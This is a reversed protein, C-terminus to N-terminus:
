GGYVQSITLKNGTFGYQRGNMTIYKNADTADYHYVSSTDVGIILGVETSPQITTVSKGDLNAGPKGPTYITRMNMGSGYRWEYLYTERNKVVIRAKYMANGSGIGGVQFDYADPTVSSQPTSLDLQFTGESYIFPINDLTVTAKSMGDYGATPTIIPKHAPDYTSVDITAAKNSELTPVNTLTITSQAMADYGSDPAIVPKNAPDYAQVDVTADKNIQVVDPVPINTLSITAKETADYGLDPTVEVPETYTSVDITAATNQSVVPVNTLTVTAKEMVDKGDTPEIEVPAVYSSVDITTEKNDEVEPLVPINTLTVTNKNMATKGSSPLVEVPDTYTSVDITTAKNAELPIAVTVTAKELADKNPWPEVEYTGNETFTAFVNEQIDAEGAQDANVLKTYSNKKDSAVTVEEIRNANYVADVVRLNTGYAGNKKIRRRM